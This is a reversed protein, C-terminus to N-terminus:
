STPHTSRLADSVKGYGAAANVFSSRPLQGDPMDIM